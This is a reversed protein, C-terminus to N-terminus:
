WIDWAENLDNLLKWILLGFAAFIGVVTLMTKPKVM